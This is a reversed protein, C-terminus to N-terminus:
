GFDRRLHPFLDRQLRAAMDAHLQAEARRRAEAFFEPTSPTRM